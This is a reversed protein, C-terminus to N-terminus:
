FLLEFNACAFFFFVHFSFHIKRKKKILFCKWLIFYIHYIIACKTGKALFIYRQSDKWRLSFNKMEKAELFNWRFVFFIFIRSLLFAFAIVWFQGLNWTGPFFCNWKACGLSSFFLPVFFIDLFNGDYNDKQGFVFMVESLFVSLHFWIWGTFHKM